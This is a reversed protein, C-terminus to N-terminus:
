GRTGHLQSREEQANDSAVFCRWESNEDVLVKSASAHVVPIESLADAQPADEGDVSKCSYFRELAPPGDGANAASPARERHEPLSLRRVREKEMAQVALEQAVVREKDGQAQVAEAESIRRAREEEAAEIAEAQSRRRLMEDQVKAVEHEHVRREREQEEATISWEVNIQRVVAVEDERDHEEEVRRRQEEDALADALQKNAAREAELAAADEPTEEAEKKFLFLGDSARRAAREEDVRTAAGLEERTAEM